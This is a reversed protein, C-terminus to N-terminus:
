KLSDIIREMKAGYEMSNDIKFTLEPVHHIQLRHGVERRILGKANEFGELVSTKEDDTAFGGEGFGLISVFVTAYSGDGSVEVASISVMSETLRPDKIERLLMESIIKRIEEGIRGARYGKGM